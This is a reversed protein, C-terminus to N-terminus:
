SKQARFYINLWRDSVLSFRFMVIKAVADVKGKWNLIPWPIFLMKKTKVVPFYELLAKELSEPTFSQKHGWRHFVHACNPCVTEQERLDENCPTTGCLFGSPKLVRNVERFSDLMQVRTLHEIVESMVVVDFFNKEFPMEDASACVAKKGLNLSKRLFEVTGSSVDLSYVDAGKELAMREFGGDGAGINLVRQGKPLNKTLFSFRSGSGKFVSPKRTQFYDWIEDKM